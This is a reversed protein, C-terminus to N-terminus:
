PAGVMLNWPHAEAVMVQDRVAPDSELVAEAAAKDAVRVVVLGGLDDAFPGGRLLTGTAALQKMYALHAALPQEFVTKGEVWAPGRRYYIVFLQQQM